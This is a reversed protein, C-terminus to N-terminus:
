EYDYFVILYDGNFYVMCLGGYKGEYLCGIVDVLGDESLFILFDVGIMECIEEVIYNVVILEKRM